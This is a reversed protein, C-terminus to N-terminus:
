LYMFKETCQTMRFEFIEPEQNQTQMGSQDGEQLDIKM